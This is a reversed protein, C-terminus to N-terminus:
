TTEHKLLNITQLCKFNSIGDKTIDFSFEGNLYQRHKQDTFSLLYYKNIDKSPETLGLFYVHLFPLKPFIRKVFDQWLFPDSQDVSQIDNLIFLSTDKYYESGKSKKEFVFDAVSDSMNRGETRKLFQGPLYMQEVIEIYSSHNNNDITVIAGDDAIDPETTFVWNSEPKIFERHATLVCLGFVERLSTHYREIKKSDKLVITGGTLVQACISGMENKKTFVLETSINM